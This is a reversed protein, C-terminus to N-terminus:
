RGGKKIPRSNRANANANAKAKTRDINEYLWPSRLYNDLTDKHAFMRGANGTRFGIQKFIQYARPLSIGYREVAYSPRVLKPDLQSVPTNRMYAIDGM